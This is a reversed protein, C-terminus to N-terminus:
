YKHKNIEIVNIVAVDDVVVYFARYALSLRISRQGRRERKLPEDHFGPQKRVEAVGKAQVADIWTALKHVIQPPCKRLERQARASITVTTIVDLSYWDDHYLALHRFV